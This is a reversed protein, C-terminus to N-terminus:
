PTHMISASNTESVMTKSSLLNHGYHNFTPSKCSLTAQFAFRCSAVGVLLEEMDVKLFSYDVLRYVTQCFLSNQM